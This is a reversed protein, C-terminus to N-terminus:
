VAMDEGEEDDEGEDEVAKAKKTDRGKERDGVADRWPTFIKEGTVFKAEQIAVVVHKYDFVSRDKLPFALSDSTPIPKGSAESVPPVVDHPVAFSYQITLALARASM